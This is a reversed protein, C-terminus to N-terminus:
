FSYKNKTLSSKGRAEGLTMDQVMKRFNNDHQAKQMVESYRRSEKKRLSNQIRELAAKRRETM